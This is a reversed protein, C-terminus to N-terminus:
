EEEDLDIVEARINGSKCAPCKAGPSFFFFCEMCMCVEIKNDTAM